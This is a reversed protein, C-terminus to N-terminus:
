SECNDTHCFLVANDSLLCLIWRQISRYVQEYFGQSVYFCLFGTFVSIISLQYLIPQHVHRSTHVVNGGIHTIAIWAMGKSRQQNSKIAMYYCIMLVQSTVTVKSKYDQFSFIALCMSLICSCYSIFDELFSQFAM